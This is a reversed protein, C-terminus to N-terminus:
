ISDDDEEFDPATEEPSPVPNNIDMKEEVFQEVVSEPANEPRFLCFLYCSQLLLFILFTFIIISRILKNNKKVM